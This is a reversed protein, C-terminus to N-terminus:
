DDFDIPEYLREQNYKSIIKNRPTFDFNEIIEELEANENCYTEAELAYYPILTLPSFKSEETVLQLGLIEYMYFLIYTLTDYSWVEHEDLINKAQSCIMTWNIKNKNWGSDLYIRQVYDTFERRQTGERPKYKIKNGKEEGHKKKNYCNENCYYQGQKVSYAISKDIETGCCRCKVLIPKKAM